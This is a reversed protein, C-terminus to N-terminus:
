ISLLDQRRKVQQIAETPQRRRRARRSPQLEKRQAFSKSINSYVNYVNNVQQGKKKEQLLHEAKSTKKRDNDNRENLHIMNLPREEVAVGM